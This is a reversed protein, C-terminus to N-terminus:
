KADELMQDASAATDKFDQMRDRVLARDNAPFDTWFSRFHETGKAAAAKCEAIAADREPSDQPTAQQVAVAAPKARQQGVIEAIVEEPLDEIDQTFLDSAATCTIVADVQGRKKAMKLITNAVDAPNTRVQKKQEVKGQYKSFKVRRRNEPTADFEEPCVALRWAYKDEQSSCEGIGAGIFAGSMSTLRVKVRYHVEGDRSLDEVEPDGALRFTAMLKEAGAKYLSKSKTGPITGYHTGDQMVEKMVDQMLNVQARVDAATLSRQGYNEVAPQFQVVQNM